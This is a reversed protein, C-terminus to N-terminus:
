RYRNEWFLLFHISKGIRINISVTHFMSWLWSKSIALIFCNFSLYFISTPPISNPSIPQSENKKIRVLDLYFTTTALMFTNTVLHILVIPSYVEITHLFWRHLSFSLYIMFFNRKVSKENSSAFKSKLRFMFDFWISFSNNIIMMIIQILMTIILRISLYKM